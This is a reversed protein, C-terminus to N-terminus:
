RSDMITTQRMCKRLLVLIRTMTKYLSNASRGTAVAIQKIAINKRFRMTLLKRDNEKLKGICHNLTDIKGDGSVPRDQAIESIRHYFQDDFVMKLKKNARLYEMVKNKAIGIAWAGFSGGERFQDFQEWLIVATEQFIEDADNRNHVVALIFSYIRGQVSHYLRLFDANQKGSLTM